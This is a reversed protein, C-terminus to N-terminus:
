SRRRLAALCTAGLGLLALSSPEPIIQTVTFIDIGMMVSYPRISQNFFANNPTTFDELTTSVPQTMGAESFISTVISNPLDTDGGLSPSQFFVLRFDQHPYLNPNGPDVDIDVRFRVTEGPALGGDGILVKLLDGDQEVSADLEFGPTSDGLLVFEGNFAPYQNSFHFREDGITMTFETIPAQSADNNTLELFPMNLDAIRQVPNDWSAYKMMMMDDPFELVDEKASLKLEFGVNDFAARANGAALTLCILPLYYNATLFTSRVYCLRSMHITREMSVGRKKADSAFQSRRCVRLPATPYNAARPFRELVKERAACGARNGSAVAGLLRRTSGALAFAAAFPPWELHAATSHRRAGAAIGLSEGL